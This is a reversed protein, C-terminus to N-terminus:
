ENVAQEDSLEPWYEHYDHPRLERPDILGGSARKFKLCMKPGFFSKGRLSIIKRIYGVSTGCKRAFSEREDATMSNFYKIFNDM